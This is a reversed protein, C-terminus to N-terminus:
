FNESKMQINADKLKMYYIEFFFFTLANAVERSCFNYMLSIHHNSMIQTVDFTKFKMQMNADQLKM